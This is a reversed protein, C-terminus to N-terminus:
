GHREASALHASAAVALRLNASDGLDAFLLVRPWFLGRRTFRVRLGEAAPVTLAPLACLPLEALWLLQARSLGFGLRAWDPASRSMQWLVLLAFSAFSLRAHHARISLWPQLSARDGVGPRCLPLRFLTVPAEFLAARQRDGLAALLGTQTEDLGLSLRDAPQEPTDHLGLLLDMFVQNLEAIQTLPSVENQGEPM